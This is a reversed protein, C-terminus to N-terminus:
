PWNQVKEDGTFILPPQVIHGFQKLNLWYSGIHQRQASKLNLMNQGNKEKSQPPSSYLHSLIVLLGIAQSKMRVTKLAM